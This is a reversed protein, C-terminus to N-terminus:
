KILNMKKVISSNNFELKYLYVGSSVDKGYNDKGNWSVHYIGKDLENNILNKVESGIINYISLKVFGKEPISFSIRTEPNFPNPYNQSLSFTEPILTETVNNLKTQESAEIVYTGNLVNQSFTVTNNNYDFKANTVEYLENDDSLYKVKLNKNSYNGLKLEENKYSFTFTIYKDFPVFLGNQNKDTLNISFASIINDSSTIPLEIPDIETISSYFDMNNMNNFYNNILNYSFDCYTNPNYVSRIVVNNNLQRRIIKGPWPYKGISDIWTLGNIEQVIIIKPLSSDKIFLGGKINIIDGNLPRKAGSKPEYWWPGFMLLYDKTGDNSEDLYYVKHHLAFSDVIATGSVSIPIISDRVCWGFRNAWPSFNKRLSDPDYLNRFYRTGISDRWKLGNITYVLIIPIRTKKFVDGTISVIEGQLPRTAGSSPSYWKPGFSLEYDRTNNNDVDLFYRTSNKFTDIIVKGSISIPEVFTKSNVRGQSFVWGVFILVTFILYILKKM